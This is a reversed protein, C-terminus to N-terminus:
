VGAKKGRLRGIRARAEEEGPVGMQVVRQLIRVAQETERRVEYMEALNFAARV